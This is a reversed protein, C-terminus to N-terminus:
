GMLPKKFMYRFELVRSDLMGAELWFAVVTAAPDFERGGFCFAVLCRLWLEVVSASM